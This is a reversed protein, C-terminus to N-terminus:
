ERGGLKDIMGREIERLQTDVSADLVGQSTEFIVEGPSLTPDAAITLHKPSGPQELCKRLLAEIAPHVRARSIERSQLKSFAAQLLGALADPDVAVERHIVRAAISTALRVLDQISEERISQRLGALDTLTRAINEIAPLIQQEAERRGTAAGEAFGERRAQDLRRAIELEAEARGNRAEGKHAAAVTRWPVRGASPANELLIESSM